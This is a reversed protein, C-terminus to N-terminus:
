ELVELMDGVALSGLERYLLNQGFFVQGERRRFGALTRNIHPDRAATEQIISPVVCRSCPKAVDFLMTGIRIRRWGDEAFPECGTVVLNPRFRNMPVPEPLRSNLDDLSAQSILLVPFGDAFGVTEGASAWAGDVRRVTEEPMFVLRCSVGLQDSVWAAAADGGDRAAVRDEWIRVQLLLGGAGPEEIDITSDGRALTIGAASQAVRILAMGPTERQSMFGGGESVLMWRRDGVPGFRDLEVAPLSIGACSKVPYVNIESLHM